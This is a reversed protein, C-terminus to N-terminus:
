DTVVVKAAMSDDGQRLKVIYVGQEVGVIDGSGYELTEDRVLVGSLSYMSVKLPQENDTKFTVTQPSTTITTFVDYHRVVSLAEPDITDVLMYTYTQVRFSSTIDGDREYEFLTPTVQYSTRVFVHSGWLKTTDVIFSDLVTSDMHITQYRTTNIYVSDRYYKEVFITDPNWWLTDASLYVPDLTDKDIVNEYSNSSSLKLGFRHVSDIALVRDPIPGDFVQFSFRNELASKSSGASFTKVTGDFLEISRSSDIKTDHFLYSVSDCARIDFTMTNTAGGMESALYDVSLPVTLFTDKIIPLTNVVSRLTDQMMTAISPMKSENIRDLELADYMFDFTDTAMNSMRLYALDSRGNDDRLTITLLGEEDEFSSLPESISTMAVNSFNLAFPVDVMGADPKLQVLFGHHPAVRVASADGVSDVLVKLSKGDYTYAVGAVVENGANALISRVSVTAEYPNPVWNWGSRYLNSNSSRQLKFQDKYAASIDFKIVQTSSSKVFYVMEDDFTPNGEVEVIPDEGLMQLSDSFVKVTCGSLDSVKMTVDPIHLTTWRNAPMYLESTSSNASLTNEDIFEGTGGNQSEICFTDLQMVAKNKLMGKPAVILDTNTLAPRAVADAEIIPYSGSTCNSVIIKKVDSVGAGVYPSIGFKWNNVDYFNHSQAGTWVAIQNGLHVNTAGIDAPFFKTDGYVDVGTSYTKPLRGALYAGGKITHMVMDNQVYLLGTEAELERNFTGSFFANGMKGFVNYAGKVSAPYGGFDLSDNDVFVNRNFSCYGANSSGVAMGVGVNQAVTNGTFTLKQKSQIDVAVSGENSHIVTNSMKFEGNASVMYIASGTGGPVFVASTDLVGANDTITTDMKGLSNNFIRCNEVSVVTSSTSNKDNEFALAGGNHEAANNEFICNRIYRFSSGFDYYAAGGNGELKTTSAASFCDHIRINELSVEGFQVHVGGNKKANTVTLDRIVINKGFYVFFGYDGGCDIITQDMGAGMIVVDTYYAWSEFEAVFVGWPAISDNLHYTGAEIYLTDGDSLTTVKAVLLSDTDVSIKNALASSALLTIFLSICLRIYHNKM